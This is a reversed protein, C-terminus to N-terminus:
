PTLTGAISSRIGVFYGGDLRRVGQFYDVILHFDFLSEIPLGDIKVCGVVGRWGVFIFRSVILVFILFFM